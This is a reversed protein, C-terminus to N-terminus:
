LLTLVIVFILMVLILGIGVVLTEKDIGEKKKRSM